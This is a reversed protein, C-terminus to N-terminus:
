RTAPLCERGHCTSPPDGEESSPRDSEDGKEVKVVFPKRARAATTTGPRVEDREHAAALDGVAEVDEVV